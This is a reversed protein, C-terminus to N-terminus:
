SGPGGGYFFHWSASYPLFAAILEHRNSSSVSSFKFVVNWTIKSDFCIICELAHSISYEFYADLRDISFLEM